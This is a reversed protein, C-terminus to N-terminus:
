EIGQPVLEMGEVHDRKRIEEGNVPSPTKKTSVMDRKLFSESFNFHQNKQHKEGAQDYRQM